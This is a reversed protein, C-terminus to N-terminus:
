LLELYTFHQSIFTVFSTYCKYVPFESSWLFQFFGLHISIFPFISCMLSYTVLSSITLMNGREWVSWLFRYFIKTSKSLIIRIWLSICLVYCLWFLKSFPLTPLGVNDSKLLLCLAINISVTHYLCIRCHSLISLGFTSRCTYSWNMNLWTYLCKLPSLIVKEVFPALVFSYGYGFLSVCLCLSSLIFWLGLHWIKSLVELLM